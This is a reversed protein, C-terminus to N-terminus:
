SAAKASLAPAKEGTEDQMAAVPLTTADGSVANPESVANGTTAPAGESVMAESSDGQAADAKVVAPAAQADAKPAPLDQAPASEVQVQTAPQLAVVAVAPKADLAATASPVEVTAKNGAQGNHKPDLKINYKSHNM